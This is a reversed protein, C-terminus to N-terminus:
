NRPRGQESVRATDWPTGKSILSVYVPPDGLRPPRAPASDAELLAPLSFLVGLLLCLYANIVFNEYSLGGAMGPFLVIFVFWFIVFGVPFLATGRLRRVVNWCSTIVAGTFVLWLLLGPIGNELMFNGYGSEVAETVNPAGLIRTLYQGGLSRTGIGSGLVWNPYRFAKSFESVPYGWARWGLESTPSSPSLTQQYFAVRPNLAEPYLTSLFVVALAALLVTTAVAIGIKRTRANQWLMERAFVSTIVGASILAYLLAGRSGSLIIAVLFLGMIAVVWKRGPLRRILFYTATGFGLLWVLLLYSSFRGDSVFVSTPRIFSEHTIPAERMLTGLDRIDQALDAPALLTQGSISQATGLAAILGAISLNLLLFRRLDNQNRLLAYGLFFLPVYGFYLKLGLVGYWLSPSNPNVAELLSWGFLLMFPLFFAPRVPLRREHGRTTYFSLYCAAALLDKGFYVAMNNGLYKRALDEFLMWAIFFMVGTRWNKLTQFLVIATTSIAVPALLYTADQLVAQALLLAAVMASLVWAIPGLKTREFANLSM